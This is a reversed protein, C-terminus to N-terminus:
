GFRMTATLHANAIVIRKMALFNSTDRTLRALFGQLSRAGAYHLAHQEPYKRPGSVSAARSHRAGRQGACLWVCAGNM